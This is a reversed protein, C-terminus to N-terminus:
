NKFIVGSLILGVLIILLIATIIAAGVKTKKNDQFIYNEKPDNEDKLIQTNEEGQKRAMKRNKKFVGFYM